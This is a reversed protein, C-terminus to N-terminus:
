IYASVMFQVKLVPGALQHAKADFPCKGFIITSKLVHYTNKPMLDVCSLSVTTLYVKKTRYPSNEEEWVPAHFFPAAYNKSNLSRRAWHKTSEVMERGTTCAIFNFESFDDPPAGRTLRIERRTYM